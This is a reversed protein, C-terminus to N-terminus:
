RRNALFVEITLALHATLTRVENTMTGRLVTRSLACGKMSLLVKLAAPMSALMMSTSTSTEPM